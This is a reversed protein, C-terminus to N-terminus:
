IFRILRIRRTSIFNFLGNKNIKGELIANFVEQLDLPIELEIQNFYLYSSDDLVKMLRGNFDPISPDNNYYLNADLFLRFQFTDRVEEKSIVELLSCSFQEGDSRPYDFETEKIKLKYFYGWEFNFGQISSCSSEQSGIVLRKFHEYNEFSLYPDVSITRIKESQSNLSNFISSFIFLCLVRLM